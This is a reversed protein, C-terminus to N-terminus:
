ARPSERRASSSAREPPRVAESISTVDVKPCLDEVPCDPCWPRRATCTARGHKIFYFNVDPWDEPPYVAALEDQARGANTPSSALALRYAVRNVHVDVAVADAEGWLYGQVVSATKPGVGPLATLEDFGRPVEGGHRELLARAGEKLWAAKTWAYRLPALLERLRAEDALMVARPTPFEAFLAPTLRNVLADRNQASLIVAVLLQYPTRHDLYAYRGGYRARLRALVLDAREASDM